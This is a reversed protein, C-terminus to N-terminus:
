LIVNGAVPSGTSSRGDIWLTFRRIEGRTSPRGVQLREQESVPQYERVDSHNPGDHLRRIRGSDAGSVTVDERKDM